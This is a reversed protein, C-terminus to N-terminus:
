SVEKGDSRLLVMGARALENIFRESSGHVDIITGSWVSARHAMERRFARRGYRHWQETRLRRELARFTPATDMHGDPWIAYITDTM